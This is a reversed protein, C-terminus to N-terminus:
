IGLNTSNYTFQVCIIQSLFFIIYIYMIILPFFHILLFQRYIIIILNLVFLLLFFVSLDNSGSFNPLVLFVYRKRALKYLSLSLYIHIKYKGILVM